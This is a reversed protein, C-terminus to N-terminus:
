ILRVAPLRYAPFFSHSSCIIYLALCFVCDVGCVSAMGAMSFKGRRLASADIVRGPSESVGM